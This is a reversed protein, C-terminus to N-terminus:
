WPCNRKRIRRRLCRNGQAPIRHGPGHGHDSCEEGPRFYRLVSLHGGGSQALVGRTPFGTAGKTWFNQCSPNFIRTNRRRCISSRNGEPSPRRSPPVQGWPPCSRGTRRRLPWSRSRQWFVSRASTKEWWPIPASRMEHSILVGFGIALRRAPLLPRRCPRCVASLPDEGAASCIPCAGDLCSGAAMCGGACCCSPSRSPTSRLRRVCRWDWRGGGSCAVWLLYRKTRCFLGVALEWLFGAAPGGFVLIPLVAYWNM